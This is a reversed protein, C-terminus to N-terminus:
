IPSLSLTEEIVRLTDVDSPRKTIVSSTGTLWCGLATPTLM